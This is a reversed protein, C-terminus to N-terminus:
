TKILLDRDDWHLRSARIRDRQRGPFTQFLCRARQLCLFSKEDDPARDPLHNDALTHKRQSAEMVWLLCSSLHQDCNATSEQEWSHPVRFKVSIELNATSWHVYSLRALVLHSKSHKSDQQNIGALIKVVNWIKLKETKTILYSFLYSAKWAPSHLRSQRKVM